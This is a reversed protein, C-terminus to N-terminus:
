KARKKLEERSLALLKGVPQGNRYTMIKLTVANGEPILIPERYQPTYKDPLTENLTYFIDLGNIETKIDAMLKGDKLTTTVIADYASRAYNFPAIDARKMQNEM